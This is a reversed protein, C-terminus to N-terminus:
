NWTINETVKEIETDDNLTFIFKFKQLNGLTPNQIIKFSHGNYFEASKEKIYERGRVYNMWNDLSRIEINQNDSNRFQVTILENIKSSSMFENSFDNVTYVQVDNIFHIPNNHTEEDGCSKSDDISTALIIEVPTINFEFNKNPSVTTESIINIESIKVTNSIITGGCCSVILMFSLFYALYNIHKKIM